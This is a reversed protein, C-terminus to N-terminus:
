WPKEMMSVIQIALKDTLRKAADMAAQRSSTYDIAFVLRPRPAAAKRDAVLSEVTVPLPVGVPKAPPSIASEGDVLDRRPKATIPAPLRDATKGPERRGGFISLWGGGTNRESM